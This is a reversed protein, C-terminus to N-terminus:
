DKREQLLERVATVPIRTMETNTRPLKGERIWHYVQNRSINLCYATQEVTLQNYMAVMEQPTRTYKERKTNYCLPLHHQFGVPRTLGCRRVCGM